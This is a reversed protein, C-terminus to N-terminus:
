PATAERHRAFWRAVLEGARIVHDHMATRAAHPDHAELAEGIARHDRVNEEVLTPDEVLPRATLSRPFARHVDAIAQVLRANDAARHVTLHFRDNAATWERRADGEAREGRELAAFSRLAREFMEEAERLERLQEADMRVAALAAALGELEARVVYSEEIDRLSPGRVLAGRHPVLEVVGSAQLKRMAERVPTRSVGFEEALHEQRLWSGVSIDGAMVRQQLERALEDVILATRQRPAM